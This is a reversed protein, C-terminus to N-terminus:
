AGASEREIGAIVDHELRRRAGPLRRHEDRTVDVEELTADVRGVNEGDRERSLGRRLHTLTDHGPEAGGCVSRFDITGGPDVQAVAEALDRNTRNIREAQRQQSLKRELG